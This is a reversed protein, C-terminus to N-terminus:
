LVEKFMKLWRTLRVWFSVPKRVRKRMHNVEMPGFDRNAKLDFKRLSLLSRRVESYKVLTIARGNKMKENDSFTSSITGKKILKYIYMYLSPITPVRWDGRRKEYCITEQLHRSVEVISQYSYKPYPYRPKTTAKVKRQRQIGLNVDLIDSPQLPQLKM